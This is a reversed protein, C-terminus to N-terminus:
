PAFAKVGARIETTLTNVKPVLPCSYKKNYACYPNYARNFDIVISDGGPIALDIYRGGAYTEAGNTDDL